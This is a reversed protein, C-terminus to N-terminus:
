GLEVLVDVAADAGGGGAVDAALEEVVEVARVRLAPLDFHGALAEPDKARPLDAGVDPGLAKVRRLHAEDDGVAAVLVPEPLRVAVRQLDALGRAVVPVPVAM